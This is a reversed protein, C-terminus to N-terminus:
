LSTFTIFPPNFKIENFTLTNGNKLLGVENSIFNSLSTSLYLLM